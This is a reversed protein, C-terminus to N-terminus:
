QKNGASNKSARLSEEILDNIIKRAIEAPMGKYRNGSGGRNAPFLVYGKANALRAIVAAQTETQNERVDSIKLLAEAKNLDNTFAFRHSASLAETLRNRLEQCIADDCSIQIGILKVENLPLGILTPQTSRTHNRLADADEPNIKERNGAILRDTEPKVTPREPKKSNREATPTKQDVSNSPKAEPVGQNTAQQPNEPAPQDGPTVQQNPQPAPLPANHNAQEKSQHNGKIVYFWVGFGLLAVLTFALAPKIVGALNNIKLSDGLRNLRQNFALQIAKHAKNERYNIDLNSSEIEGYQDIKHTETFTIEQGGELTITRKSSPLHPNLFGSALLVSVKKSQGIIEIIEAGEDLHFQINSSRQLDIEGMLVGDIMVKLMGSSFRKRRNSQEDLSSKIAQLDDDGFTPPDNRHHNTESKSLNFNPIELRDNPPNLKLAKVLRTFCDPHLLTHTRNVEIHHEADPDQSDFELDKLSSVFPNYSTPLVCATAWPTFHDLCDFVFDKFQSQTPHSEFREEGRNVKTVKLLEGFRDKMEQMLRAKRSRYYYDDRARDPDQVVLNYIEMAEATSYNHLLRSIGLAVYFSNRKLTIKVLHKIFHTIVAEDSLTGAREKEKEFPESEMYILRQLLHKEDFNIKNRAKRTTTRGQPEYYLRKDQAQVAVELKNLANSVIQLALAKDGHIFYALRLAQHITADLLDAKEM